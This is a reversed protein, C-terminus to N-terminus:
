GIISCYKQFESEVFNPDYDTRIKRIKGDQPDVIDKKFHEIIKAQNIKNATFYAYVKSTAEDVIFTVYRKGQYSKVTMDKIDM